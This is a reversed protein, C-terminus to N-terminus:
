ADMMCFVALGEFFFGRCKGLRGEQRLWWRTGSAVKDGNETSLETFLGEKGKGSM